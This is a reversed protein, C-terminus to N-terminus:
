LHAFGNSPPLIEVVQALTRRAGDLIVNRRGYLVSTAELHLAKRILPDANVQFYPNPHSSHAIAQSRLIAGLPEQGELVLARAPESFHELNIKIIGFAVPASSGEPVLVVERSLVNGALTRELVRLHINRGYASELTPTMDRTHVLLGRYPEPLEHGGVATVPPLPLGAREYFEDLPYIPTPEPTAQM